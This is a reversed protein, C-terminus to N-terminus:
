IIDNDRLSSGNSNGVPKLSKVGTVLEIKWNQYDSVVPLSCEFFLVCKSYDTNIQDVLPSHEILISVFMDNLVTIFADDCLNRPVWFWIRGYRLSIGIRQDQMKM